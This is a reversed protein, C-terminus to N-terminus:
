KPDNLYAGAIMTDRVHAEVSDHQDLVACVGGQAYQTCGENAYDKTVIAVSGYEAVKLAYSLGAIGSGIVLFDYQKVAADGGSAYLPADSRASYRFADWNVDAHVHLARARGSRPAAARRTCRGQKTGPRPALAQLSARSTCSVSIM